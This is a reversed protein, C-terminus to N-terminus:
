IEHSLKDLANKALIFSIFSTVTYGIPHGWWIGAIGLGFIVAVAIPMVVSGVIERLLTLGLAATGRGLGQFLFTAAMGLPITIFVLGIIQFFLALQSHLRVSTSTYTFLYSIEGSFLIFILTIVIGIVTGLKIVYNFAIKIDKFNRAGYKAGVVAVLASGLGTLPEFGFGIVRFGVQYVAVADSNGIALIATNMIVSFCSLLAFELSAPIAVNCIEKIINPNYKFNSLVPKLYTDQKIYMWYVILILTVLFSLITAYSAGVIGLNLSFIFIPDLVINLLACFVMIYMVRNADGEARFIGYMATPMIVFASGLFYILGYDYGYQLNLGSAGMLHLIPKLGVVLVVTILLSAALNLFISHIAGNDALKKDKSGIYKSIVATAGSGLGNGIGTILLQLPLIFSMGTLADAGLASIWMADIIYYVSTIIMSIILPFALKRIAVKPNGELLEVGKTKENSFAM